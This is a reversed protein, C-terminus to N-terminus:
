LLVAQMNLTWCQELPTSIILKVCHLKMGHLNGYYNSLIEATSFEEHCDHSSSRSQFSNKVCRACCINKQTIKSFLIVTKSISKNELSKEANGNVAESKRSKIYRYGRIM